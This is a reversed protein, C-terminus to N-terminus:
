AFISWEWLKGLLQAIAHHAINIAAQKVEGFM